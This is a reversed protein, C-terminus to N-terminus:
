GVGSFNAAQKRVVGAILYLFVLGMKAITYNAKNHGISTRFKCYTCFRQYQLSVKSRNIFASGARVKSYISYFQSYVELHPFKPVKQAFKQDAMNIARSTSTSCM